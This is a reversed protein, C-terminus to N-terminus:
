GGAKISMGSKLGYIKETQVTTLGANYNNDPYVTMHLHPAWGAAGCTSGSANGTFGILEGMKVRKNCGWSCRYRIGSMHTMFFKNVKKGDITIYDDMKITVTYSTENGSKNVTHGWESYEIVGNVPSYVPTGFSAMIDIGNHEYVYNYKGNAPTTPLIVKGNQYTKYNTLQTPISSANSPWAGLPKGTSSDKPYTFNSANIYNPWCNLAASPDPEVDGNCTNAKCSSSGTSSSSSPVDLSGSGSVNGSGNNGDSPIENKKREEELKSKIDEYIVDLRGKYNNRLTEDKVNSLATVAAYYDNYSKSAEARAVLEDASMIYAYAIGEPTAADICEKYQNEEGLNVIVSVFTPVMFVIISAIISTFLKKKAQPLLDDSGAKIVNLLTIMGSLILIIPVVIRLILIIIKAIRIVSLVDGNQCIGLINMYGGIRYFTYCFFLANLLM